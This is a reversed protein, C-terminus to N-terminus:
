AARGTLEELIKRNSKLPEERWDWLSDSLDPDSIPVLDCIPAAPRKCFMYSEKKLEVVLAAPQEVGSAFYTAMFPATTAQVIKGVWKKTPSNIVLCLTGPKIEKKM